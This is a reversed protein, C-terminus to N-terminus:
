LPVEFGISLAMADTLSPLAENKTESTKKEFASLTMGTLSSRLGLRLWGPRNGISLWKYYPIKIAIGAGVHALVRFPIFSQDETWVGDSRHIIGVNLRVPTMPVPFDLYAGFTISGLDPPSVPIEAGGFLGMCLFHIGASYAHYGNLTLRGHDQNSLSDKKFDDLKLTVSGKLEPRLSWDINAMSLDVFEPLGTTFVTKLDYNGTVSSKFGYAYSAGISLLPLNLSGGFSLAFRDGSLKLNYYGALPEDNVTCEAALTGRWQKGTIPDTTYPTGSIRSTGTLSTNFHVQENNSYMHYYTLGAGVSLVGVKYAVGMSVPLVGIAITAPKGSLTLRLQTDVQWKVPIEEVPLDPVINRTIPQDVEFHSNILTSGMMKFSLSSLRPQLIAGGFRWRGTQWAFGAGAIGGREKLEIEADLDLANYIESSKRAQLSFLGTSSAPLIGTFALERGEVSGLAAPNSQMGLVGSGNAPNFYGPNVFFLGSETSSTTYTGIIQQSHAYLAPILILLIFVRFVIFKFASENNCDSNNSLFKMIDEEHIKNM